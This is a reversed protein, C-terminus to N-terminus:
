SSDFELVPMGLQHHEGPNFAGLETTGDRRTVLQADLHVHQREAGAGAAHCAASKDVAFEGAFGREGAM